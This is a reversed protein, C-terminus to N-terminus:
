CEFVNKRCSAALKSSILDGWTAKLSPRCQAARSLCMRALKSRVNDSMVHMICTHDAKSAMFETVAAEDWPFRCLVLLAGPVTDTLEDSAKVLKMLLNVADHDLFAFTLDPRLACVRRVFAAAHIATVRPSNLLSVVAGLAKGEVQRALKSDTGLLVNLVQVAHHKLFVQYDEACHLLHLLKPVLDTEAFAAVRDVLDERCEKLCWHLVVTAQECVYGNDTVDLMFLLIQVGAPTLDQVLAKLCLMAVTQLERYSETANETRVIKLLKDVLQENKLMTTRMTDSKCLTMWLKQCGLLGHAPPVPAKSSDTCAM